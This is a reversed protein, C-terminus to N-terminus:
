FVARTEAKVAAKVVVVVVVMRKKAMRMTRRAKGVIM